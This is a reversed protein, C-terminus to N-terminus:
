EEATRWFLKTIAFQQECSFFKALTVTMFFENRTTQRKKNKKDKVIQTKM